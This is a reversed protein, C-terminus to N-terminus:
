QRLRPPTDPDMGPASPIIEKSQPTPEPIEFRLGVIELALCPQTGSNFFAVDVTTEESTFKVIDAIIRRLAPESGQDVGVFGLIMGKTGDQHVADVLWATEALGSVRVMGSALATALEGSLNEPSLFEKPRGTTEVGPTALIEVLWDVADSPILISSSAVDLNIALGIGQGNLMAALDRGSLTAFPAEAKTFEALREETDFVLVFSQNEVDVTKPSIRDGAPETELLLSLECDALQQYFRLRYAEEDPNKEMLEHTQDLPTM